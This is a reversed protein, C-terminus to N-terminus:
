DELNFLVAAKRSFRIRRLAYKERNSPLRRELEKILTESSLGQPEINRPSFFDYRLIGLILKALYSLSRDESETASCLTLNIREALDPPLAYIIKDALLCLSLYIKAGLHDPALSLTRLFSRRASELDNVSFFHIGKEFEFNYNESDDNHLATYDTSEIIGSSPRMFLVPTGWEPSEVDLTYIALRGETVATDLPYGQALCRYLAESFAIAAADSIPFQMGIVAPVGALALATATGGFLNLSSTGTGGSTATQCANLVVLRISEIGKLLAAFDQGYLAQSGGMVDEFILSGRGEQYNFDAHGMFHIIHFLGQQLFKRLADPTPRELLSIDMVKDANCSAAMRRYEHSLALSPLDPTNALIAAIRLPPHFASPDPPRPVSLYRVISHKRDLALFDGTDARFLFEWPLLALPAIGRESLDLHIKIRIGCGSHAIARGRTEDYASRVAGSFLLRFLRDGTPREAGGANPSDDALAFNRSLGQLQRVHRGEVARSINGLLASLKASSISFTSSTQGAPSYLVRVRYKAARLAEFRLELDLYEM